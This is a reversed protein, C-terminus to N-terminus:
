LLKIQQLSVTPTRYKDNFFNTQLKNALTYFPKPHHIAFHIFGALLVFIEGRTFM